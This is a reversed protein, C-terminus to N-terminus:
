GVLCLAVGYGKAADFPVVIEMAEVPRGKGPKASHTGIGDKGPVVYSDPTVTADVAIRIQGLLGVCTWEEPREDRPTYGRSPDYDPVDERIERTVYEADEPIPQPASAVPGSYAERVVEVERRVPELALRAAEHAAEAAAMENLAVVTREAVEARMARDAEAMRDQAAELANWLHRNEPVKAPWKQRPRKWPKLAALAERYADSPGLLYRRQDDKNLPAAKMIEGARALRTHAVHLAEEAAVRAATSRVLKPWRVMEVQKSIPRGWEDTQFRGAWGLRHRGGVVGPVASVPGLVRDGPQALRVKRGERTTLRGPELVGPQANEFYEAYDLAGTNFTGGAITDFDGTVNNARWALDRDAGAAGLVAAFAGAALCNATNLRAFQSGVLVSNNGDVASSVSGIVASDSGTASFTGDCAIAASANGSADGAGTSAIVAAHTGTVSATESAIAAAMIGSAGVSSSAIAVARTGTATSANCAITAVESGTTADSGISAIVASQSTSATGDSSAAVLSQSGSALAAGAGVVSAIVASATGSATGTGTAIVASAIGSAVAGSSAVCAAGAGNARGGGAIIANTHTTTDVGTDAAATLIGKLPNLRTALQTDLAVDATLGDDEIANILEEQVQNFFQAGPITGDEVGPNGDTFYGPPNAGAAYAALVATNTSSSVRQM